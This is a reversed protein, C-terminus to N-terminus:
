CGWSFPSLCAWWALTRTAFLLRSFIDRGLKDTGLLHLHGEQVGFVHIDSKIFGWLKYPDGHFFFTLPWPHNTDEEIELLFTKPNMSLKLANTYPPWQFKGDKSVFHLKQPPGYLYAPTRSLPSYPALIEAFLAIFLFVALLVVGVLALRHKRFKWWMLQFQSATYYKVDADRRDKVIPPAPRPGVEIAETAQAM